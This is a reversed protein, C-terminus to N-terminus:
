KGMIKFCTAKGNNQEKHPIGSAIICERSVTHPPGNWIIYKQAKSASKPAKSLYFVEFEEDSLVKNVIALVFLDNFM